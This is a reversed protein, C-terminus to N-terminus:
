MILIEVVWCVNYVQGYHIELNINGLGHSNIPSSCNYDPKYVIEPGGKIIIRAFTVIKVCHHRGRERKRM